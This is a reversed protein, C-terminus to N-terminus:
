KSSIYLLGAQVKGLRLDWGESAELKKYEEHPNKGQESWEKFLLKKNTEPDPDRLPTPDANLVLSSTRVSGMDPLAPRSIVEGIVFPM